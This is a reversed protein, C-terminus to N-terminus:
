TGRPITFMTWGRCYTITASWVKTVGDSNLTAFGTLTGIFKDTAVGGSPIASRIMVGSRPPRHKSGPVGM